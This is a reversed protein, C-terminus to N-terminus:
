LGFIASMPGLGLNGQLRWPFTDDIVGGHHHIRVRVTGPHVAHIHRADHLVLTAHDLDQGRVGGVTSSGPLLCSHALPLSTRCELVEGARRDAFVTCHINGPQMAWAGTWVPAAGHM